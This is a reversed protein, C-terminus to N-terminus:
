WRQQAWGERGCPDLARVQVTVDEGNMPVVIGYEEVAGDVVRWAPSGGLVLTQTFASPGCPEGDDPCEDPFYADIEVQIRDYRDLAVDGIRVAVYHHAGGQPGSYMQPSEGDALPLFENAGDGVEVTLTGELECSADLEFEAESWCSACDEEPLDGEPGPPLPWCHCAWLCGLAALQHLRKSMELPTTGAAEAEIVGGRSRHRPSSGM